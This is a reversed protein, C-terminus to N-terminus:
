QRIDFCQIFEGVRQETLMRLGDAHWRLVVQGVGGGPGVLGDLLGEGFGVHWRQDIGQHVQGAIDGKDAALFARGALQEAVGLTANRRFVLLLDALARELRERSVSVGTEGVQRRGRRGQDLLHDVEDGADFEVLAVALEQHRLQLDEVLIRVAHGQVIQRFGGPAGEM